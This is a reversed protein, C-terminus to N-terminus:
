LEPTDIPKASRRQKALWEDLVPGIRGALREAAPHNAQNPRVSWIRLVLDGGGDGTSDLPYELRMPLGNATNVQQPAGVFRSPSEDLPAIEIDLVRTNGVLLKLLDRVEAISKAQPIREAIESASVKENVVRRAQRVVSAVSASAEIFENYGLWRIGWVVIGFLGVAGALALAATLRPPAFVIILGFVAVLVFTNGLLHVSRPASFGLARLQHHIHRGDARSLPHGRVWRRAMATFTDLLPYALASLPILPYTVGDASTAATVTRVALVFGITMSGADGLFISAPSWNSRLFALVAGVVAPLIVGTSQDGVLLTCTICAGLAIIAMTGALGDIGDILNFANTVGVIWVFALAGGAWVGIELVPTGNAVALTHPILGDSLVLIAAFSQVVLKALPSIGTLDDALGIAFVGSAGLLLGLRGSFADSPLLAVIAAVSLFVSLGGLRPVPTIHVRRDGPQDLWGRSNALRIVAPLMLRCLAYALTCALVSLFEPRLQTTM